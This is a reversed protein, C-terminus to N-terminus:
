GLWLHTRARSRSPHPCPRSTPAHLVPCPPSATAPQACGLLGAKLSHVRGSTRSPLLCSLLQNQAFWSMLQAHWTSRYPPFDCCTILAALMWCQPWHMDQQKRVVQSASASSDM